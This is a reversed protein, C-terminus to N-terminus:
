KCNEDVEEEDDISTSGISEGVPLSRTVMPETSEACGQAVLEGRFSKDHETSTDIVDM